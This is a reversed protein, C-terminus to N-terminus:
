GRTNSLLVISVTHLPSIAVQSFFVGGSIASCRSWVRISEPNRFSPQFLFMTDCDTIIWVISTGCRPYPNEEIWTKGGRPPKSSLNKM